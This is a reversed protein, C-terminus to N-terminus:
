CVWASDAHEAQYTFDHCGINGGHHIEPMVPGLEEVVVGVLRVTKQLTLRYLGCIQGEM